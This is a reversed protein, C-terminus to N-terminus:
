RFIFHKMNDLFLGIAAGIAAAYGLSHSRSNELNKIREDHKEFSARFYNQNELVVDLKTELRVLREADESM